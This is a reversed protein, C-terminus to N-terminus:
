CQLVWVSLRSSQYGAAALSEGLPSAQAGDPNVEDEQQEM